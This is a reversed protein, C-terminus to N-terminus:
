GAGSGDTPTGARSMSRTINYSKIINNFSMSSYVAGQDTHFITDLDRYGRKIKTNLMNNLAQIHNNNGNGFM